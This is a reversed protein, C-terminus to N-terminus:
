RTTTAIPTVITHLHQRPCHRLLPTPTLLRRVRRFRFFFSLCQAVAPPLEFFIVFHNYRAVAAPM